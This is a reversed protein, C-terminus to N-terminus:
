SGRMGTHARGYEGFVISVSGFFPAAAKLAGVGYAAYMMYSLYTVSLAATILVMYTAASSGMTNQPTPTHSHQEAEIDLFAFVACLGAASHAAALFADGCKTHMHM